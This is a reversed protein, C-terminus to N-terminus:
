AALETEVLLEVRSNLVYRAHTGSFPGGHAEHKTQGNLGSEHRLAYVYASRRRAPCDIASCGKPGANHLALLAWTDRGVVNFPLGEPLTRATVILRKTM